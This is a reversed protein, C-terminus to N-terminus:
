DLLVRVGLKEARRVALTFRAYQVYTSGQECLRTIEAQTLDALILSELLEAYDTLAIVPLERQYGSAGEDTASFGALLDFLNDTTLKFAQRALPIPLRLEFFRLGEDTTVRRLEKAGEGDFPSESDILLHLLRPWEEAALTDYRLQLRDALFREFRAEIPYRIRGLCGIPESVESGEFILRETEGELPQDLHAPCQMRCFAAVEEVKELDEAFRATFEISEESPTRSQEIADNVLRSILSGTRSLGRLKSEGYQRRMECPYEIAYELSM